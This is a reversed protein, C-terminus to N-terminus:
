QHGINRAALNMGDAFLAFLGPEALAKVFRMLEQGFGDAISRLGDRAKRRPRLFKLDGLDADDGRTRGAIRDISAFEEGGDFAGGAM